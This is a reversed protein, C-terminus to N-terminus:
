DARVRMRYIVNPDSRDGYAIAQVRVARETGGPFRVIRRFTITTHEEVYDHQPFGSEPVHEEVRTGPDHISLGPPLNVGRRHLEVLTLYDIVAGNPRGAFIDEAQDIEFLSPMTYEVGMQVLAVLQNASFLRARIAARNNEAVRYREAELKLWQPSGREINGQQRQRLDRTAELLLGSQIEVPRLNLLSLGFQAQAPLVLLFNLTVAIGWSKILHLV